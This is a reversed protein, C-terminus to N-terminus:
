ALKVFVEDGEILVEFSKIDEVAPLCLAKGEFSFKAGHAPCVICPLGDHYELDGDELPFDEHSCRNELCFFQGEKSILILDNNDVHLRYIGDKDFELKKGVKVKM